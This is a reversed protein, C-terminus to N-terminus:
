RTCEMVCHTYPIWRRHRVVIRPSKFVSSVLSTYGAKTRVYRGRDNSILLRAIINQGPDICPDSTLLRGGPKLARYALRITRMAAEDDLHHILGLAFVVDFEPMSNIDTVMPERCQFKGQNGFLARAREIYAESVDFGWYDVDPLYALIDAPGCGIDLVTMGVYPRIFEDVFWARGRRGGIIRQFLSYIAPHALLDRVGRTTQVV